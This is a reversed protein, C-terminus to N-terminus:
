VITEHSSSNLSNHIIIGECSALLEETGMNYENIEYLLTCLKYYIFKSFHLYALINMGMYRYRYIIYVFWASLLREQRRMRSAKQFNSASFKGLYNHAAETKYKNFLRVGYRYGFFTVYM